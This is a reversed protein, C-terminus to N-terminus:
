VLWGSQGSPGSMLGYRSALLSTQHPRLSPQAPLLLPTPLRATESPPWHKPLNAATGGARSAKLGAAMMGVGRSGLFGPFSM